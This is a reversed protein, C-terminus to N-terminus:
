VPYILNRVLSRRAPTLEYYEGRFPIILVGPEVGCLRAVRDSQLGACNILQRCAVPGRTTELVLDGGSRRCGLVRAGTVPRAGADRLDNALAQAVRRYSVIGTQPVFLGAIGAAHPEHDRIEESGLRRLGVLGNAWGRRELEHLRPLEDNRTAVVIKGCQEYPIDHEDCFRIMAQRGETCLRAKLSGPKYYLGSHIVGSNNGTQHSAIREEAELIILSLAGRRLLSRATALGVIGAGIIAIDYPGSLSVTTLM